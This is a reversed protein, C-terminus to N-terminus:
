FQCFKVDEGLRNIVKAEHDSRALEMCCSCCRLCHFCQLMRFIYKLHPRGPDICRKCVNRASIQWSQWASFSARSLRNLGTRKSRAVAMLLLPAKSGLSLGASMRAIVVLIATYRPFQSGSYGFQIHATALALPFRGSALQSSIWITM